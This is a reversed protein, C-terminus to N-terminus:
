EILIRSDTSPFGLGLKYQNLILICFPTFEPRSPISSEYPLSFDWICLNDIKTFVVPEYIPGDFARIILVNCSVKKSFNIYESIEEKQGANLYCAIYVMCIDNYRAMFRDSRRSLVEVVEKNYMDHHIFFSSNKINLYEFHRNICKDSNVMPSYIDHIFSAYGPHESSPSLKSVDLFNKFKTDLCDQVVEFTCLVTDFPYAFKRFGAEKIIQSVFCCPGISVFETMKNTAFLIIDVADNM